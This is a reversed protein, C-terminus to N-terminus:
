GATRSARIQVHSLRGSIPDTPRLADGQVALITGDALRVWDSSRVDWDGSGPETQLLWVQGAADRDVDPREDSSVPRVQVQARPYGAAAELGVYDLTVEQARNVKSGPRLVHVTDHYFFGSM